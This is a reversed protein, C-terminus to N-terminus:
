GNNTSRPKRGCSILFPCHSPCEGSEQQQPFSTAAYIESVKRKLGAIFDAQITQFNDVPMQDLSVRTEQETMPKSCFFLNPQIPWKEKQETALVAASYILTQRIYKKESDEFLEESTAAMKKADYNGSKYDVVRMRRNTDSGIIDLRDIFGGTRVDGVGDISLMMYRQEELLYIQLGKAADQKDRELVNSIYRILAHNEMQHHAAIYHESEGDPHNELWEKNMAVYAADLAEQLREHSSLIAEIQESTVTVPEINTCGGWHRYIYEMAHHVFSGMVNPAFFAGEKDEPRFGEIYQYYFRRPCEIYTNIASPSLSLRTYTKDTEDSLDSTDLRAPETLQRRTVVFEPSAMMQLVFRSLGKSEGNAEAPTFLLTADGARSLLRFFNYAYVTAREDATQMHYSKRLYYPIFSIDQQQQPLVGEEVNLLLVSDFDLMRTELVGLVQVDTVPEGHFPMTVSEMMRRLLMSTLRPTFEVGAIGESVLQRLKIVCARTQFVSEAVLLQQWSLPEDSEEPMPADVLSLLADWDLVETWQEAARTVEAFIRTNRLPFGKTINVLAPALEGNEDLVALSPLAYIVPELMGEDCIVVGVRQGSHTYHARLWENVYQAQAAHSTATIVTVERPIGWEREPLGNGLDRQNLNTFAFAKANTRFDRVYDWYFTAQGSDRLLSMLQKEVPLLYNFGVFAFHQGALTPLITEWQEIVSRQRMGDYGKRDAQMEQRLHQYLGSMNRWLNEFRARLSKDHPTLQGACPNILARLRNEVEEDLQWQSLEHAAITNDFFNPVEEAPMSADINTFDALMQRGWGYFLDLPMPDSEEVIPTQPTTLPSHFTALYLRYLRAITYLEDEKYLLSLRDFLETLTLVQPAFVAKRGSQQQLQMLENKLVLGARRTPLVLTTSRLAEWGLQNSIAQATHRLFSDM